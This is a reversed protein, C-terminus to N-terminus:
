YRDNVVQDVSVPLIIIQDTRLTTVDTIGNIEVLLEVTTGYRQAIRWLTEKPQLQYLHDAPIPIRITQGAQLLDSSGMANEQLVATPDVGYKRAISFVTDGKIVRYAVKLATPPLDQDKEVVTPEWMSEAQAVVQVPPQEAAAPLQGAPIETGGLGVVETLVQAAPPKTTVVEPEEDSLIEIHVVESGAETTEAGVVSVSGTGAQTSEGMHPTIFLCVTKKRDPGERGPKLVLASSNKGTFTLGALVATEGPALTQQALIRNNEILPISRGDATEAWGGIGTVTLVLELGIKGDGLARPLVEIGMGLKQYEILDIQANPKSIIVPYQDGLFAAGAQKSTARLRTGALQRGDLGSGAAGTPPLVTLRVPSHASTGPLAWNLGREQAQNLDFEVLQAEILYSVPARDTAALVERINSDELPTVVLSIEKRGAEVMLREEPVVQALTAVAAEDDLFSWQYHCLTPEGFTAPDAGVLATGEVWHCQYGHVEALLEVTERATLGPRFPLTVRGQVAPALLLPFDGMKALSRFVLRLDANGLHLAPLGKAEAEGKPGHLAPPLILFLLLSV